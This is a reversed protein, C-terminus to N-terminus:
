NVLVTWKRELLDRVSDEAENLLINVVADVNPFHTIEGIHRKELMRVYGDWCPCIEGRRNGILVARPLFTRMAGPHRLLSNFFFQVPSTFMPKQLGLRKLTPIAHYLHLENMLLRLTGPREAEAAFLANSMLTIQHDNAPHATQPCRPMQARSAPSTEQLRRLM